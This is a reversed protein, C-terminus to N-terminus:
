ALMRQCKRSLQLDDSESYSCWAWVPSLRNVLFEHPTQKDKQDDEKPHGEQVALFRTIALLQGEWCLSRIIGQRDVYRPNVYAPVAYVVVARSVNDSIRENRTPLQLERARRADGIIGMIRYGQRKSVRM